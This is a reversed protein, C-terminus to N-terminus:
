IPGPPEVSTGLHDLTRIRPGSQALSLWLGSSVLLNLLGKFLEVFYMLNLRLAMISLHCHLWYCKDGTSGYLLGTKIM